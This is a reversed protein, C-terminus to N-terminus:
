EGEEEDQEEAREMLWGDILSLSTAWENNPLRCAPFNEFYIWRRITDRSRGFLRGIPTLGVVIPSVQQSPTQTTM